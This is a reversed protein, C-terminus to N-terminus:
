EFCYQMTFHKPIPSGTEKRLCRTSAKDKKGFDTVTSTHKLQLAISSYITNIEIDSSTYVHDNKRGHNAKNPKKWHM